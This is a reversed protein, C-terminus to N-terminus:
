NTGLTTLYHEALPKYSGFTANTFAEKAAATNGKYMNAEGLVFYIKAKDARGGKHLELAKTAAAISADYNGKVNQAVATYYHFDPDQSLDLLAEVKALNALAEDADARTAAAGNRSLASSALYLYHDRIADEGTSVAERDNQAKGVEILQQYTAIAEEEKNQKKLVVAKGLYNNTYTPFLRIGSEFRQLAGAYNEADSLKKGQNYDIQAAVKNAKNAIDNDGAQRAGQAARVFLGHAEDYKKARAAELAQNYTEKYGQAFASSAGVSFCLFALLLAFSLHKPSHKMTFTM